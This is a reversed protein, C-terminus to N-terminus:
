YRTYIYIYFSYHYYSGKYEKAAALADLQVRVMHGLLRETEIAAVQM